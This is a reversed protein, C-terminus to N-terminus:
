ALLDPCIAIKAVDGAKQKELAEVLRDLPWEASVILDVSIQGRSILDMSLEAHRPTTNFVGKITLHGYHLAYTDVSIKTGQPAGGFANFLGGKRVMAIGAEWVEPLGTADIAVDVGRQGPTLERVREVEEKLDNVGILHDAGAERALALRKASVECSIVQAGRMKALQIMFLGIPGAGLIVVIDDIQIHSEDIGFLACSLPEVLAAASYTVHSPVIFMNQRWIHKGVLLYEAYSGNLLHTRQFECLNPQGRKCFFCEGCPGTNSTVVRMGERFEAVENGIAVIDGAAEHGFLSPPILNPHGRYYSKVDTGCTTAAKVKLLIDTPGVEPVAVEELRVDKPGYYVAARMMQTM